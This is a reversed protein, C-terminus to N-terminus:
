FKGSKKFKNGTNLGIKPTFAENEHSATLIIVSLFGAYGYGSCNGMRWKTDRRVAFYAAPL